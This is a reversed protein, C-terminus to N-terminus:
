KNEKPRLKRTQSIFLQCYPGRLSINAKCISPKTIIRKMVLSLRSETDILCHIIWYRDPLPHDMLKKLLEQVETIMTLACTYVLPTLNLHRFNDPLYLVSFSLLLSSGHHGPSGMDKRTAFSIRLEWPSHGM